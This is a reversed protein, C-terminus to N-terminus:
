GKKKAPNNTKAAKALKFEKRIAMALCLLTLVALAITAALLANDVWTRVYVIETTSSIGNM